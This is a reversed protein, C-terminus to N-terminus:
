SRSRRGAKGDKANEVTAAVKGGVISHSLDTPGGKMPRGLVSEDQEGPVFHRVPGTETRITQGDGVAEEIMKHM